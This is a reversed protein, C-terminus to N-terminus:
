RGGLFEHQANRIAQARQQQNKFPDVYFHIPDYKKFGGGWSLGWVNARELSFTRQEPTLKNWNIDIAFGAEHLSNGYSTGGYANGSLSAQMGNTRFADTVKLDIGWDQLDMLFGSFQTHAKDDVFMLVPMGKPDVKAPAADLHQLYNFLYGFGATLAGNAFKGGAIEATIGGSVSVIIGKMVPDQVGGTAITVLKGVAASAAGTACSGGGASASLCGAVAHAAVRQASSLGEISGAGNFLAASFAGQVGSEVSGGAVFGAAFGGVVANGFGNLGSLAFPGGTAFGAGIVLGQIARATNRDILGLQKAAEVVFFAVVFELFQGSPDTYAYPNNLVYSYRNYSQLNLPDQVIADPTMFRALAPDYIRGNMHILNLEDLHEHGTYGRDTSIGIEPSTRDQPGGDPKRREGFGEYGLRELQAGAADSIAVISGLHDRHYYRMGESAPTGSIASTVVYVGLLGAPTNVYYKHEQRGDSQRTEREYRLDGRNDAHLYVSTLTDDPRATVLKVREQGPGYAYSYTYTAANQTQSITAPLNFSTYTLSRSFSVAASNLRNQLTGSADTLNGNADYSYSASLGGTGSSGTGTGNANIAAVSSVAHPRTPVQPNAPDAPPVTPGPYTYTGADSKTTINGIADYAITRGVVGSGSVSTLRNLGDYSYNETVATAPGTQFAKATLNGILDYTYHDKQLWQDTGTVPVQIDTLRQNGDEIRTTTRGNGLAETLVRGNAAQTDAQWLVVSNSSQTVRYLYGQANYVHTVAFDGIGAVGHAPYQIQDLRGYTDYSSTTTFTEGAQTVSVAGPRGLSDYTQSRSYAVAGGAVSASAPKGIGKSGGASSDYTFSAVFGDRESKQTLRGLSDYSSHTASGGSGSTCDIGGPIGAAASSAAARARPDCQWVLEGVANYRYTWLGMDPDQMVTKRGRRDYSLQTVNGAPDTSRTLNGNADHTYTLTTDINGTTQGENSRVSVIQGQSNKVTKRTQAARAGTGDPDVSVSVTLGNYATETVAGGPASVNTPRGADDYNNIVTVGGPPLIIGDFPLWTKKTRGHTDFLVVNASVVGGAAFAATKNGVKRGLIDIVASTQPAYATGGKTATETVSYAILAPLDTFGCGAGTCLTHTWTSVTGDARTEDKKRGLSDYTWVTALANPGTLKAPQGHTPEHELCEAHGAPNARKIALRGAIYGTSANAVCSGAMGSYGPQAAQTTDYAAYTTRAIFAADGTPTAAEQRAVGGITSLASGNCNRTLTEKRNGWADYKYETVVCLDADGPEVVERVLLGSEADYEFASTRVQEEAIALGSLGFLGFVGVAVSCIRLLWWARRPKGPDANRAPPNM